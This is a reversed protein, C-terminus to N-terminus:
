RWFPAADGVQRLSKGCREVARPLQAKLWGVNFWARLDGGDVVEHALTTAVVLDMYRGLEDQAPELTDLFRKVRTGKYLPAVLESLYRLRKLRKRVAHRTPEDLDEFRKADRALRRHLKDLRRGIAAEPPTADGDVSDNRDGGAVAGADDRSGGDDGVAGAAAGDGLGDHSGAPTTPTLLFELLDLLAHQLAPARVIAVPDLANAAVDDARLEPKPSGVALLQQQVTAAVARRDRYVGLSRFAEAAPPEWADGLGDCWDGLERHATRLRRLGVRLQHVAEDDVEGGAILSANALVQDLCSRVVARFIAAGSADRAIRAPRAKVAPSRGAADALALGRASKTLTSLWMGHADVNARALAILAKADGHKLEVEVECLPLSREGAAVTGRDLAVELEADRVEVRLATRRVRSTHVREIAPTRGRKAWAADLMAGAASGAHLSLEPQPADGGPKPALHVTEELREAPSAGGAKVTQEWAGDSRRLRLSLGARALRRDASDWYHSELVATTAGLARLSAEVAVASAETLGFKLEIEQM